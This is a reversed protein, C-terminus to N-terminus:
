ILSKLEKSTLLEPSYDVLIKDPKPDKSEESINGKQYNVTQCATLLLVGATASGKVVLKIINDLNM